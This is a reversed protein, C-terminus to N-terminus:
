GPGPGQPRFRLSAATATALTVLSVVPSIQDTDLRRVAEICVASERAVPRSSCELAIRALTSSEAAIAYAALGTGLGLSLRVASVIWDSMNRRLRTATPSSPSAM